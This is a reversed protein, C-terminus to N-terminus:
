CAPTPKVEDVGKTARLQTVLLRTDENSRPVVDFAVPLVDSTL